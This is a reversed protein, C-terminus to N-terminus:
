EGRNLREKVRDKSPRKPPHPYARKGNGRKARQLGLAQALEGILVQQEAGFHEPDMFTETETETVEVEKGKTPDFVKRPKGDEDLVPVQKVRSSEMVWDHWLFTEQAGCTCPPSTFHGDADPRWQGKPISRENGCNACIHEAVNGNGTVALLPM